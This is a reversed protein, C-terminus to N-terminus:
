RLGLRASCGPWPSYSGAADRTREAITIQQERTALYADPAFEEGGMARWTGIHFMLGGSFGGAVPPYAWNSGAECVALADWVSEGVPAPNAVPARTTTTTISALYNGIENAAIAVADVGNGFTLEDLTAPETVDVPRALAPASCKGLAFACAMLLIVVVLGAVIRAPEVSRTEDMAPYNESEQQVQRVVRCARNAARRLDNRM